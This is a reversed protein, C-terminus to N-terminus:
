VERVEIEGPMDPSPNENRQCKFRQVQRGDKLRFSCWCIAQPKGEAVAGCNSCRVEVRDESGVRRLIRGMCHLCLHDTIEWGNAIPLPPPSQRRAADIPSPVPATGPRPSPHRDYLVSSLPITVYRSNTGNFRIVGGKEAGPLRLFQESHDSAFPTDVILKLLERHSNAVALLGRGGNQRLIRMGYRRLIADADDASIHMTGPTRRGAAAAILEYVSIHEGGKIHVLLALIADRAKVSEEDEKGHLATRQASM